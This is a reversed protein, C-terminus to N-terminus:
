GSTSTPVLPFPQFWLQLQLHPHHAPYPTPACPHSPPLHPLLLFDDVRRSKHTDDKRLPWALRRQITGIKVSSGRFSDMTCSQINAIMCTFPGCQGPAFHLCCFFSTDSRSKHTDDKRLPWALRRQITGIKVSSGRFSDITCSQINATMCTFPECQGPAFHLCCFFVQIVERSTRTM